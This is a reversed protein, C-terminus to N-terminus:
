WNTFIPLLDIVLLSLIVSLITCIPIWKWGLKGKKFSAARDKKEEAIYFRANAFDSMSKAKTGKIIPLKDDESVVSVTRRLTSGDKLFLKLLRSKCGLESLTKASEVDTAEADFLKSVFVGTTKRIIYAVIMAINFGICASWVILEPSDFSLMLFHNM